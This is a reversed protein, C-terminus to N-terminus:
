SFYSRKGGQILTSLTLKVCFTLCLRPIIYKYVRKFEVHTTHCSAQSELLSFFNLTFRLISYPHTSAFFRRSFGPFKCFIGPFCKKESNAVRIHYIFKKGFLVRINQLPWATMTGRKKTYMEKAMAVFWHRHM